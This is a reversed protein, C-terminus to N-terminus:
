TLLNKITDETDHETNIIRYSQVLINNDLAKNNVQKSLDMNYEDAASIISIRNWGYVKCLSIM